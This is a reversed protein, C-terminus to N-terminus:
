HRTNVAGSPPADGTGDPNTLLNNAQWVLLRAICGACHGASLASRGVGPVEAVVVMTCGAPLAQELVALADAIAQNLKENVM